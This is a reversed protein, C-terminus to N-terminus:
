AGIELLTITSADSNRQFTVDSNGISGRAAQIKYTTVSTTSPSDLYIITPNTIYEVTNVSASAYWMQAGDNNRTLINTSGRVLNWNASTSNQGNSWVKASVLVLIKSSTSSPTITASINADTMTTTSITTSTTSVSSVVQLVKGGAAPTTWALGTGTTSAATLVQGNTGVALRGPTDAGTGVLIDGKADVITNSIANSVSFANVTWVSVIDGATLAALGTISNGTTATYDDGRKQLVGNIFVLEQGVTYSLPQSNDDNGSVSTEGGSATKVWTAISSSTAAQGQAGLGAVTQWASGDYRKVAM